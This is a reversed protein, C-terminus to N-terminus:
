ETVTVSELDLERFPTVTVNQMRDSWGAQFSQFYLPIAPMDQVIMREAEQYLANSEEVSPAADARALLADVAPNTYEGDNSAAGTRYMPNLFNEISPYDAVWGTRFIRSLERANIATRFEGFTPVPVFNCERGLAQTITVCTAQMWEANGSDANSTLEIPGQFGTADFMQRAREPQYTCLDGCQNTTRGPVNPAVLGDAPPRTGAFIQQNVAERDIAMSIAQRLQVNQYRPDYLPFGIRQLGLYTQSVSRGALDTEYLNGALGSPPIVEIFDLNNSVVDAYAAEASEYFRFEVGGISPKPAGPWPDYREVMINAGPQRSVYRFPGNGIPNAEWAAQDTFFADPLPSFARYGLMIPFVAFPETLTVELTLDDVVRLGSMEQAPPQPAQQPGSAGDPDEANVQDYGAIQSFFSANQQGNPSYATYNWARAFSQATVPTGDHFTWGDKLRITYVRSDTTEISEAVLNAPEATRPDYEVLPSFLADIVKGGGTENTNGPVLPNEPETSNVSITVDTQAGGGQPAETGGGGGCATTFLAVSVPLAM